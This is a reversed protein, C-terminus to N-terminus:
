NANFLVSHFILTNNITRAPVANDANMLRDVVNFSLFPRAYFYHFRYGISKISINADIEIFSSGRHLLDDLGGYVVFIAIDDIRYTEACKERMIILSFNGRNPSVRTGRTDPVPHKQRRHHKKRGKAPITCTDSKSRSEASCWWELRIL